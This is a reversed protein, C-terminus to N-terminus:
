ISNQLMGCLYKSKVKMADRSDRSQTLIPFIALMLLGCM